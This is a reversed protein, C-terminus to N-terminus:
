YADNLSKYDQNGEINVKHLPYQTGDKLLGAGVNLVSERDSLFSDSEKPEFEKNELISPAFEEGGKKDNKAGNPGFRMNTEM